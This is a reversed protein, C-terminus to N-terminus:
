KTEQVHSSLMLELTVILAEMVWTDRTVKNRIMILGMMNDRKIMELEQTLKMHDQASCVLALQLGRM